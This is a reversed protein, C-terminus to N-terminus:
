HNAVCCYRPVITRLSAIPPFRIRVMPEAPSKAPEINPYGRRVHTDVPSIPLRM